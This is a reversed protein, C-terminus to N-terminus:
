DNVTEPYLERVELVKPLIDLFLAVLNPDFHSGAEDKLFEVAREVSWAKKYPRTTVLADFVDVIAVIRGFLPIEYGSLGRPYGQGNWKEHHTIAIRSATEMLDSQIGGLIKSGIDTHTEMVTREDPDLKDTKFLIQDPIGIKGVDHMPAATFLKEVDQDSLGARIGLLRAYNSVRLIHSGTENDRYEAAIGLRTLIEKRTEILRKNLGELELRIYNVRDALSAAMVVVEIVFGFQMGYRIMFVAPAIGVAKFCFAIAGILFFSWGLIYLRAPFYGQRFRLVGVILGLVAEVGSVAVVLTMSIRFFGFLALVSCLISLAIFFSIAKDWRPLNTKTVLFTQSFRAITAGCLGVFFPRSNKAWVPFEPWLYEFAFGTLTMSFLTFSVVSAVYYLYVSERILLYLILNYVIMVMMLGYFLGFFLQANQNAHHFTEKDWLILPIEVTDRSFIRIYIEKTEQPKLEVNFLFNRNKVERSSLPFSDGSISKKIKGDHSIQYVDLNDIKSYDYEMFWKTEVEGPNYLEFRAWFTDSTFGLNPYDSQNPQFLGKKHAQRVEEFSMLGEPDRLIELHKALHYQHTEPTIVAPELAFVSGAPYLLILFCFSLLFKRLLPEIIVKSYKFLLKKHLPLTIM